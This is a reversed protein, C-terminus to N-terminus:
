RGPVVAILGLLSIDVVWIATRPGRRYVSAPAATRRPPPVAHHRGYGFSGQAPPRTM